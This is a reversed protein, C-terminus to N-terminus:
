VPVVVHVRGDYEKKGKTVQRYLTENSAVITVEVPTTSNNNDKSSFAIMVNAMAEEVASKIGETIQANNAVTTRNGMKGVLEPAKENAVFIDGTSPFGGNAYWGDFSISPFDFSKGAIKKTTTGFNFHPTPINISQLGNIFSKILNKGLDYLGSLANSIRDPISGVLGIFGDM